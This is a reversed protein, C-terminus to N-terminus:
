LFYYECPSSDSLFNTSDCNGPRVYQCAYYPTGKCYATGCGVLTTAKWMVQTYHGCVGSCTGTAEDYNPKEQDTWVSMVDAISRFGFAINEGVGHMGSPQMSCSSAMADAWGQASAALKPSWSLPPVIGNRRSNHENLWTSASDDNQRTNHERLWADSYTARRGSTPCASTGTTGTASTGGSTGSTGSTGSSTGSNTSTGSTGSTSTVTMTNGSSSTTTTTTKGTSTTTTTTTSRKKLGDGTVVYTAAAQVYGHQVLYVSYEGVDLTTTAFTITGSAEAIPAFLSTTQSGHVFIGIWTDQVTDATYRVVVPDGFKGSAPSIQLSYSANVQGGPVTILPIQGLARLSRFALPEGVGTTRAQRRLLGADGGGLLIVVLLLTVLALVKM